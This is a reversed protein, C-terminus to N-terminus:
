RIRVEMAKHCQPMTGDNVRACCFDIVDASVIRWSTGCRRCHGSWGQAPLCSAALRSLHGQQRALRFSEPCNLDFVWSLQLLKFDNLTELLTLNVMERRELCALVAPTCSPEDQFGLGAASAREGEPLDFYEM